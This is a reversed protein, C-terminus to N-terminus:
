HATVLVRTGREGAMRDVARLMASNDARPGVTIRHVRAGRSEQGDRYRWVTEGGAGETVSALAGWAVHVPRATLARPLGVGGADVGVIYRRARRGATVVSVLLAIVFVVGTAAVAVQRVRASTGTSLLGYIAFEAVVILAAAQATTVLRRRRTM